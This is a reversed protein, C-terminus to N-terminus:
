LLLSLLCIARQLMTPRMWDTSPKCLVFPQGGFLLSNEQRVVRPFHFQQIMHNNWKSNKSSSGDQKGYHSCLNVNGGVSCLSEKRWGDEGPSTIETKQVTAVRIETLLYRMTTKIQMERIILSASCRKMHRKATQIDKSFHQIQTKVM